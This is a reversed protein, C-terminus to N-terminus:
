GGPEDAVAAVGQWLAACGAGDRGERGRGVGRRAGATPAADDANGVRSRLRALAVVAARICGANQIPGGLDHIRRRANTANRTTPRGRNKEASLPRGVM